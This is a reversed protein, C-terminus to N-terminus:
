SAPRKWHSLFETVAGSQMHRMSEFEGTRQSYLLKGRGNLVAVAPVGKKLPIQYREAIDLNADLRDVNVHVLIYNAELLASNASDHFYSDLVHCDTCWNGGFDLIVRKHAAAASKIAEAIDAAAQTPPPYIEREVSRASLGATAMLFCAALASFNSRTYQMTAAGYGRLRSREVAM